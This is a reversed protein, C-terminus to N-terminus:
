LNNTEEDLRGSDTLKRKRGVDLALKFDVANELSTFHRSVSHSLCYRFSTVGRVPGLSFVKVSLHRSVVSVNLVATFRIGTSSENQVSISKYVAFGNEIGFM